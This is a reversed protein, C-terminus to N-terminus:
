QSHIRMAEYLIDLSNSKSYALPDIFFKESLQAFISGVGSHTKLDVIIYNPVFYTCGVIDPFMKNIKINYEENIKEFMVKVHAIDFNTISFLHRYVSAYIESGLIACLSIKIFTEIDCHFCKYPCQPEGISSTIRSVLSFSYRLNLPYNVSFIVIMLKWINEALTNHIKIYEETFVASVSYKELMKYKIRKLQSEISNLTAMVVGTFYHLWSLYINEMGFVNQDEIPMKRSLILVKYFIAISNIISNKYDFRLETITFNNKIPISTKIVYEKEKESILSPLSKQIVITEFNNDSNQKITGKTYDSIYKLVPSAYPIPLDYIFNKTDAYRTLFYLMFFKSKPLIYDLLPFTYHLVLLDKDDKMIFRHKTDYVNYNSM